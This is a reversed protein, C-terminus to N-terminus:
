HVQSRVTAPQVSAVSRGLNIGVVRVSADGKSQLEAYARALEEVPVQCWTASELQGAADWRRMGEDAGYYDVFEGVTHPGSGDAPDVRRETQEAQVRHSPHGRRAHVERPVDPSDHDGLRRRKGAREGGAEEWRRLGEGEGYHVIFDAMTHPGSGDAPDIRMDEHHGGRGVAAEASPPVGGGHDPGGSDADSADVDVCDVEADRGRKVHLRKRAAATGTPPGRHGRWDWSPRGRAVGPEREAEEEELELKADRCRVYRDGRLVELDAHWLFVKLPGRDVRVEYVEADESVDGATEVDAADSIEETSDMEVYVIDPGGVPTKNVRTVVGSDGTSLQRGDEWVKNGTFRGGGVFRVRDGVSTATLEAQQRRWERLSVVFIRFENDPLSIVGVGPTQRLGVIPNFSISGVEQHYSRLLEGSLRGAARGTIRDRLRICTERQPTSLGAGGAAGTPPSAATM